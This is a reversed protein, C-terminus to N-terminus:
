IGLRTRVEYLHFVCVNKTVIGLMTDYSCFTYHNVESSDIRRRALNVYGFAGKGLCHLTEYHTVYAENGVAIESESWSTEKSDITKKTKSQVVADSEAPCDEYVFCVFCNHSNGLAFSFFM